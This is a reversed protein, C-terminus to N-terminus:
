VTPKPSSRFQHVCGCTLLPTCGLGLPVSTGAKPVRRSRVRFSGREDAQENTGKIIFQFLLYLMIRLEILQELLNDLRSARPVGSKTALDSYLHDLSVIRALSMQIFVRGGM